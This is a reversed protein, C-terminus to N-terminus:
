SGLSYPKNLLASFKRHNEGKYRNGRTYKKAIEKKSFFLVYECIGENLLRLM